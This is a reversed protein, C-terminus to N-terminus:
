KIHQDSRKSLNLLNIRSIKMAFNGEILLLQFKLNSLQLYLDPQKMALSAYCYGQKTHFKNYLLRWSAFILECLSSNRLVDPLFNKNLENGRYYLPFFVDQEAIPKSLSLHYLLYSKNADKRRRPLLNENWCMLYFKNQVSTNNEHNNLKYKHIHHITSNKCKKRNIRM